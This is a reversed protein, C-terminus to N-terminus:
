DAPLIPIPHALPLVHSVTGTLSGDAAFSREVLRLRSDDDLLLLTSCRTGYDPSVIFPPSLRREWEIPVGTRPLDADPVPERDGLLDFLSEELRESDGALAAALRARSRSVKPWPTDLLHNSLGYLGRELRKLGGRNSAYWLGSADGAILNFGDYDEGEALRARLFAEGDWGNGAVFDRVLHGRSRAGRTGRSPDRYNTVVAFAGPRSAALWTGQKELDRGGIVEPLDPWAHATASPRAHFEDRNAALVIPFRPHLGLALVVLCM